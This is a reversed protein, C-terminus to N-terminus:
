THLKKSSVDKDGAADYADGTGGLPRSIRDDKESFSKDMQVVIEWEIRIMNWLARRGVEALELLLVLHSSHLSAFWPLRTAKWSFRLILNVVVAFLYFSWHFHTRLRSNVHGTRHFTILGWDM